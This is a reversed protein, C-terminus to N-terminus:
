SLLFLAQYWLSLPCLLHDHDLAAVWLCSKTVRPVGLGPNVLWTVGGSEVKITERLAQLVM